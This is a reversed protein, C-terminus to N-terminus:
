PLSSICGQPLNYAEIKGSTALAGIKSWGWHGGVVRKLLGEGSLRNLGPGQRRGARCRVSTDSRAARGDRRFARRSRGVSRGACWDWCIGVCVTDGSQIVSVADALSVTKDFSPM